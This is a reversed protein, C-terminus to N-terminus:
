RVGLRDGVWRGIATGAMTGGPLFSGAIGGVLSGITGWRSARRQREMEREMMERDREGSLLDLYRNTVREGYGGIGQINQLDLSAAGMANRAIESTLNQTARNWVEDEDMEGYGGRLRGAGVMRGRLDRITDRVQPLIQGWAGEAATTVAQTPDFERARRYYEDEAQRGRSASQNLATMYRNKLTPM